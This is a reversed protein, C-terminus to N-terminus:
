ANFFREAAERSIRAINKSLGAGPGGEPQMLRSMQFDSSFPGDAAQLMKWSLWLSGSQPTQMRLPVHLRAPTRRRLQWRRRPAQERAALMHCWFCGCPCSVAQLLLVVEVIAYHYQIHGDATRVIVDAATFPHPQALPGADAGNRLVLGTEEAAERVACEVMTQWRLANNVAQRCLPSRTSDPM